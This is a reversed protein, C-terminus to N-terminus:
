VILMRATAQKVFCQFWCLCAIVVYSLNFWVLCPAVYLSVPLGGLTNPHQTHIHTYIYIYITVYMINSSFMMSVIVIVIIVSSIIIIIIVNIMSILIVLIVNPIVRMVIVIM